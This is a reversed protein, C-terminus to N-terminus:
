CKSPIASNVDPIRLIFIIFIWKMVQGARFPKENLDIFLSKLKDLTLGALNIKKEGNM